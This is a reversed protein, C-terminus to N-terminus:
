AGNGFDVLANDRGLVVAHHPCLPLTFTQLADPHAVDLRSVRITVHGFVVAEALCDGASCYLAEAVRHSSM